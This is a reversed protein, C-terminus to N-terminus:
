SPASSKRIDLMPPLPDASPIEEITTIRNMRKVIDRIQEAGDKATAIWGAEQSGEPVKRAILGLGGIVAMLPNNIEHAAARALSAVARLQAADRRAAEATHSAVVDALLRGGAGLAVVDMILVALWVPAFLAVGRAGLVLFSLATILWVAV